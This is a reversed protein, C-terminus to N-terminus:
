FNDGWQAPTGRTDMHVFGDSLYLGTGGIKLAKVTKAVERLKVGPISFDVAKAYLHQSNIAPNYGMERLLENTAETRFGSNIRMRETPAFFRQIVYLSAYLKRDCAVSQKQRWDRMLHDCVLLANPNWGGEVFLQVDYAEATHVNTLRLPIGDQAAEAAMATVACFSSGVVGAAAFAVSRLLFQRRDWSMSM